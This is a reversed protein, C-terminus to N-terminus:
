LQSFNIEIKSWKGEKDKQYFDYGYGKFHISYSEQILNLGEVWRADDYKDKHSLLHMVKAYELEGKDGKKIFSYLIEFLNADKKKVTDRLFEEILTLAKTSREDWQPTTSRTRTIRFEGTSHTMSFGGKSKKTIKGYSALKNEQVEFLEHLKNKFTKLMFSLDVVDSIASKVIEDIGVEYEKREKERQIKEAKKRAVLLKELEETSMNAVDAEM